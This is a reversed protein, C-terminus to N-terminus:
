YMGTESFMTTDDPLDSDDESVIYSIIMYRLADMAHNNADEPVGPSNKDPDPSEKWSYIGFERILNTCNKTVQLVPKEDPLRGRLREVAKDIGLNLWNKKTTSTERKAKTVPIKHTVNMDIINQRGSPDAYTNEFPKNYSKARIKDALDATSLDTEFIEDYIVIRGSPFVKGFLVCAPDRTGWDISRFYWGGPEDEMKDIVHDKEKFDKYILGELKEFSALYEQAFTEVASHQRKEDLFEKREKDKARPTEYSTFKWSKWSSKKDDTQGREWIKQFWNYGAPTSIFLCWGKTSFLEPELVMEWVTSSIYAAEDIVMGVVGAGRIRDANEAGVIHIIAGNVLEITMNTNDVAPGGRKRLIFENPIEAILQRWHNLRGQKITPSVIWFNPPQFIGKKKPQKHYIANMVLEQRACVSKGFKRGACVVRYKHADRHIIEQNPEPKYFDYKIKNIM